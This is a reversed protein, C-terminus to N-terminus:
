WPLYCPEPVLGDAASASQAAQADPRLPSLVAESAHGIKRRRLVSGRTGRTSDKESDFGKSVKSLPGRSYPPSGAFSLLIFKKRARNARGAARHETASDRYIEAERQRTSIASFQFNRQTRHRQRRAARLARCIALFGVQTWDVWQPDLM